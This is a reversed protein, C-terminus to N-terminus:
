LVKAVVGGFVRELNTNLVQVMAWPSTTTAKNTLGLVRARMLMTIAKATEASLVAWVRTTIVKYAM